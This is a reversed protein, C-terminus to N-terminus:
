WHRNFVIDDLVLQNALPNLQCFLNWSTRCLVLPLFHQRWRGCILKANKASTPGEVAIWTSRDHHHRRTQSALKAM